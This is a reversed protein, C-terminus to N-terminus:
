GGYIDTYKNIIRKLEDNLVRNNRKFQHMFPEDTEYLFHRYFLVKELLRDKDKLCKQLINFLPAIEKISRTDELLFEKDEESLNDRMWDKVRVLSGKPHHKRETSFNYQFGGNDDPCIWFPYM